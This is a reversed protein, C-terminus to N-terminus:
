MHPPDKKVPTSARSGSASALKNASGINGNQDFHAYLGETTVITSHGLWKQIDEM